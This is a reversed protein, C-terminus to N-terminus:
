SNRSILAEVLSKGESQLLWLTARFYLIIRVHSFPRAMSLPENWLQRGTCLLRKWAISTTAFCVAPRACIGFIFNGALGQKRLLGNPIWKCYGFRQGQALSFPPTSVWARYSWTLFLLWVHKQGIRPRGSSVHATRCHRQRSQLGKMFAPM